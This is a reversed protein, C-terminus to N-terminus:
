QGAGSRRGAALVELRSDGGRALGLLEDLRKYAVMLKRKTAVPLLLRAALLGPPAAEFEERGAGVDVVWRNSDKGPVCAQAGAALLREAQVRITEQRAVAAEVFAAVAEVAATYKDAVGDLSVGALAQRADEVAKERAEVRAAAEAKAADREAKEQALAARKRALWGKELTEEPIDEGDVLRAELEAVARDLDAVTRAAQEAKSKASEAAKQTSSTM